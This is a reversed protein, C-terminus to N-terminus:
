ARLFCACRAERPVYNSLNNDWRSTLKPYLNEHCIPNAESMAICVTGKFVYYWNWPRTLTMVCPFSACYNYSAVDWNKEWKIFYFLTFNEPCGSSSFQWIISCKKDKYEAHAGVRSGAIKRRIATFYAIEVGSPRASFSHTPLASSTIINARERRGVRRGREGRSSLQPPIRCLQRNRSSATFGRLCPESIAEALRIHCM